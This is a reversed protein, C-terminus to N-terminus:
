IYKCIYLYLQIIIGSIILTETCKDFIYKASAGCLATKICKEVPKNWYLISGYNPLVYVKNLKPCEDFPGILLNNSSTSEGLYIVLSLNACKHFTASKLSIVDPPIISSLQSCHRFAYKGIESVSSPISVYSLENCKHFAFDIITKVGYPISYRGKKKCPCVYLISMYAQNEVSVHFPLLM